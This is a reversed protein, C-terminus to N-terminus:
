SILRLFLTPAFRTRVCLTTVFLAQVALKASVTCRLTGAGRPIKRGGTNTSTAISRCEHSKENRMNISLKISEACTLIGPSACRLNVATMHLGGMGPVCACFSVLSAQFQHMM